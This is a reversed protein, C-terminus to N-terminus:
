DGSVKLACKATKFYATAWGNKVELARRFVDKKKGKHRYTRKFTVLYLLQLFILGEIEYGVPPHLSDGLNSKKTFQTYRNIRMVEFDLKDINAEFVM